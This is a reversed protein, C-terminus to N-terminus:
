PLPKKTTQQWPYPRQHKNIKSDFFVNIEKKAQEYSEFVLPGLSENQDGLITISVSIKM